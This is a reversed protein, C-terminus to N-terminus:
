SEFYRRWGPATGVPLRGPCGWGRKLGQLGLATGVQLLLESSQATSSPIPCGGSGCGMSLWCVLGGKCM